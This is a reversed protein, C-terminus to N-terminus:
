RASVVYLRGPEVTLLLRNVEPIAPAVADRRNSPTRILIVALDFAPLNQQYSLSRDLTVLVDFAQEAARLLAGNKTGGWGQERVTVVDHRANFDRKLRHDMNEDLLVRM